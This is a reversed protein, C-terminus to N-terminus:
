ESGSLRNILVILAQQRRYLFRIWVVLGAICAVCVTLLAEVYSFRNLLRFLVTCLSMSVAVTVALEWRPYPQQVTEKARAYKEGQQYINLADLENM